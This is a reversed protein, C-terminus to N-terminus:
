NVVGEYNVNYPRWNVKTMSCVQFDTNCNVNVNKDIPIGCVAIIQWVGNEEKNIGVGNYIRSIGFRCCSM